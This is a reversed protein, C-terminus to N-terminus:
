SGASASASVTVSVMVTAKVSTVAGLYAQTAVTACALAKGSLATLNGAVSAGASAVTEAGTVALPGQTQAVEIIAPLNTQLTTILNQLDTSVTGACELSATPPTCTASLQADGSCSGQCNADGM